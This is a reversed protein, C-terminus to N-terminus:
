PTPGKPGGSKLGAIVLGLIGIATAAWAYTTLSLATAATGGIGVAVSTWFFAPSVGPKLPPTM